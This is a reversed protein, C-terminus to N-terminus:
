FRNWMIGISGEENYCHYCCDRYNGHCNSCVCYCDNWLNACCDCYINPHNLYYETELQKIMVHRSERDLKIQKEAAELELKFIDAVPHSIFLMIKNIAERPLKNM